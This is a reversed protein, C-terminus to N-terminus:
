KEKGKVFNLCSFSYMLTSFLFSVASNIDTDSKSNHETAFITPPTCFVSYTLM